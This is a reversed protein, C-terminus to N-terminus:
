CIERKEDWELFHNDCVTSEKAKNKWSQTPSEPSEESYRCKAKLHAASGILSKKLAIESLAIKKVSGEVITELAHM